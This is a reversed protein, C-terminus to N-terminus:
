RGPHGGMPPGGGPHGMGGGTPRGMPNASGPFGSGFGGAGEPHGTGETQSFGPRNGQGFGQQSQLQTLHNLATTQGMQSVDIAHQIHPKAQDPVRALLGNLINLHKQTATQVRSYADKQQSLSGNFHSQSLATNLGEMGRDYNNLATEMGPTDGAKASKKAEKLYNQNEKLRQKVQKLTITGQDNSSQQGFTTAPGVLLAFFIFLSGIMCIQALRRM